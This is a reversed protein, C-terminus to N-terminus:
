NFHIREALRLQSPKVAGRGKMSGSAMRGVSARDKSELLNIFLEMLLTISAFFFFGKRSESSCKM